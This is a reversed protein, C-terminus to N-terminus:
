WRWRQWRGLRRRLERLGRRGSTIVTLGLGALGVGLVMIPFMVLSAVPRGGGGDLRPPGVVALALGSLAYALVFYVALQHRKVFAV